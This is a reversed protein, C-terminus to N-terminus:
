FRGPPLCFAWSSLLRRVDTPARRSGEEPWHRLVSQLAAQLQEPTVEPFNSVVLSFSERLKRAQVESSVVESAHLRLCPADYEISCCHKKKVNTFYRLKIRSFATCLGM